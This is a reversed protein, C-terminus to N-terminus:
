GLGATGKRDPRLRGVLSCRGRRGKHRSSRDRQGERPVESVDLELRVNPGQHEKWQSKEERLDKARM